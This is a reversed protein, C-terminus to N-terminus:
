VATAVYFANPRVESNFRLIINFGQLFACIEVKIVLNLYHSMNFHGFCGGFFGNTM